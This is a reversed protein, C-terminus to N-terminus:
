YALGWLQRETTLSDADEAADQPLILYHRNKKEVGRAIRVSELRQFLPERRRNGIKGHDAINAVDRAALDPSPAGDREDGRRRLIALIKRPQEVNDRAIAARDEEEQDAAINGGALVFRQRLGAARIPHRIRRRQLLNEVNDCALAAPSRGRRGGGRRAPGVDNGEQRAGAADAVRRQRRLGRKLEDPRLAAGTPLDAEDVEVDLGAMDAVIEVDLRLQLDVFQDSGRLPEVRVQKFHEAATVITAEMDEGRRAAPQAMDFQVDLSQVGKEFSKRLAVVDDDDVQRDLPPWPRDMHEGSRLADEDGAQVDYRAKPLDRFRQGGDAALRGNAASNKDDDITAFDAREAADRPALMDVRHEARLLLEENSSRADHLFAGIGARRHRDRIWGVFDHLFDGRDGLEALADGRAVPHLFSRRLPQAFTSAGSAHM